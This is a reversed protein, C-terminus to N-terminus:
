AGGSFINQKESICIVEINVGDRGVSPRTAITVFRPAPHPPRPHASLSRRQLPRAFDHPGSVEVSTDLEHFSVKVPSPPWLARAGPLARWLGYVM